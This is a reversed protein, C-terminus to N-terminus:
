SEKVIMRRALYGCREEKVVVDGVAVQEGLCLLRVDAETRGGDGGLAPLDLGALLAAGSGSDTRLVPQDSSAADNM